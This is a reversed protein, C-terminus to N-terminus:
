RRSASANSKRTTKAAAKADTAAIKKSLKDKVLGQCYAQGFDQLWKNFDNAGAWSTQRVGNNAIDEIVKVALPVDLRYAETMVLTWANGDINWLIGLPTDIPKGDEAVFSRSPSKQDVTERWIDGIMKKVDPDNMWDEEDLFALLRDAGMRIARQYRDLRDQLGHDGGNIIETATVVDGIDAQANLNHTTWFYAAALFGVDYKSVENPHDVYYTATPCYGRDFAWKSFKTYNTRGTLQIPGRGKFRKGDGPQTNGLDVRDEYESGDAIEEMWRLGGSETGLQAGAMAIRKDTTCEAAFLFGTWPDLLPGYDVGESNGMIEGLTAVLDVGAYGPDEFFRLMGTLPNICENIFEQVRPDGFTGYGMQFHMSDNPSVWDNGWWVMQLGKYTCYRLLERIRPEEPGGVIASWQWGAKPDPVKPGMPHDDWNYDFATGGLHNSTPVKNTGTWGGEDTGGRSNYASEVYKNLAGAFAKLVISPQGKQLPIVIDTEPIPSFDLDAATCSPWGNETIM